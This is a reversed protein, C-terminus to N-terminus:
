VGSVFQGPGSWRYNCIIINLMVMKNDDGKPQGTMCDDKDSM